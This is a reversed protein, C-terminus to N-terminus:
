NTLQKLYSLSEPGLNFIVDLVSLHPIFPKKYSFVQQYNPCPQDLFKPNKSQYFHRLDDAIFHLEPSKFDIPIETEMCTCIAGHMDALFNILYTYEKKYIPEFIYDYYEFFPSGKYAAILTKWHNLQWPDVNSIHVQNLPTKSASKDIPITLTIIGNAGAIRYRNRYTQKIFKEHVDFMVENQILFSYYALPGACLLPVYHM